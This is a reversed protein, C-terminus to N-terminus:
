MEGCREVDRWMEGYTPGLPMEHKTTSFPVGPSLKPPFSFFTERDKRVRTEFFSHIELIM